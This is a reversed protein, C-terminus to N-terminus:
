FVSKVKLLDGVKDPANKLIIERASPLCETIKDERSSAPLAALDIKVAAVDVKQLQGVFDLISALDKGLVEKEPATLELRAM